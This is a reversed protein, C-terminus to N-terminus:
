CDAGGRKQLQPGRPRCATCQRHMSFPTRNECASKQSCTLVPVAPDCALFRQASTIHPRQRTMCPASFGSISTRNRMSSNALGGWRGTESNYIDGMFPQVKGLSCLGMKECKLGHHTHNSHGGSHDSSGDSHNLSAFSPGTFFNLALFLFLLVPLGGPLSPRFVSM